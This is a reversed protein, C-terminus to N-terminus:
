LFIYPKLDEKDDWHLRYSDGVYPRLGYIKIYERNSPASKHYLKIPINPLM